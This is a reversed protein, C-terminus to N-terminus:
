PGKRRFLNLYKGGAVPLYIQEYNEQDAKM